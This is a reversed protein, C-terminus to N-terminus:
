CDGDPPTADDQIKKSVRMRELRDLIEQGMEGKKSYADIQAQMEKLNRGIGRLCSDVLSMVPKARQHLGQFKFDKFWAHEKIDRLDHAGLRADQAKVVMKTILEKALPHVGPPIELKMDMIKCFVLYESAAHFPPAGVIVQYICCGLSWTDSRFDSCKNEIVEPAMFQPTGVYDEFVKSRSTNGSGKIQPNELDKATGFDILKLVGTDTLMCNEAKLDRHVVNAHRLYEIANLLQGVYHRAMHDPSGVTKVADWLEGGLCEELVVFVTLTDSFHALMKIINPHNARQLCHKEMALDATKKLKTCRYRDVVKLAVHRGTPIEVASYVSVFNGRGLLEGVEYDSDRRKPLPLVPFSM